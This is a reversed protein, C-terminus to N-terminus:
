MVWRARFKEDAGQKQATGHSFCAAEFDFQALKALSRRGEEIDDYVVSYGFGIMNSCADGVFLLGGDRPLLLAIHGASHGPTHIAKLGGAIPLTEGDQIEHEIETAPIFPPVNKIFMRYMAANVLGPAPQSLVIKANGRVIEADERHMWASARTIKKLAALSGAHDPHCHTLVINHIDTPKKGLAEVAAVIKQESNKYGTDILTLGNDDELLYLHIPGLSLEYVNPIIATFPM